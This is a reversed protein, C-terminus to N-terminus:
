FFQKQNNQSLKELVRAMFIWLFQIVRSCMIEEKPIRPNPAPIYSYHWLIIASITNPDNLIVSFDHHNRLDGEDYVDHWWPLIYIIQVMNQIWVMLIFFSGLTCHIRTFNSEFRTVRSKQPFFILPPHVKSSIIQSIHKQRKKMEKHFGGDNGVVWILISHYQLEVKSWWIIIIIMMLYYLICQTLIKTLINKLICLMLTM